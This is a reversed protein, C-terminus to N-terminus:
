LSFCNLSKYEKGFTITILNHLILRAPFTAFIAVLHMWLVPPSFQLFHVRLGLRRYSSLLLVFRACFSSSPTSQIWRARSLSLRRATIFATMKFQLNWFVYSFIELVILKELLIQKTCSLSNLFKVEPVSFFWSLGWYLPRGNGLIERVPLM